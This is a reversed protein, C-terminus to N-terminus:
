KKGLSRKHQFFDTLIQGCAEEGECCALAEACETIESAFATSTFLSALTAFALVFKM